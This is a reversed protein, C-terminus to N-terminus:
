RRAPEGPAASADHGSGRPLREAWAAFGVRSLDLEYHECPHHRGYVHHRFEPLRTFGLSELLQQYEPDPTSAAYIGNRALLAFMEKVLRARTPSAADGLYAAHSFHYAIAQEPREALGDRHAWRGEAYPGIAPHARLLDLSEVCIPVAAAFGVLRQNDRRRVLRLLTGPYTLLARTAVVMESPRPLEMRQAGWGDLVSELENVAARRPSTTHLLRPEDPCFLVDRLLTQNALFLHDAVLRERAPPAVEDMRRRYESLAALRLCRSREPDRWELDHALLLRLDDHLTLGHDTLKVGPIRSLAVFAERSVRAGVLRSLMAQDAERVVSLLALLEVEDDPVSRLWRELLTARVEALASGDPRRSRREALVADAGLALAGATRGLHTILSLAADDGVGRRKLYALADADSWADLEVLGTREWGPTGPGFPLSRASRAALVVAVEGALDALVENELYSRLPGLEDVDDVIVVAGRENAWTVFSEHGDVGLARWLEERSQERWPGRGFAVAREGRLHAALARLFTTKGAGVVGVVGVVRVGADGVLRCCRDLQEEFEGRLEVGEPPRPRAPLNDRARKSAVDHRDRDRARGDGAALFRRRAARYVAAVEAGVELDLERRAEKYRRWQREIQDRDKLMGALEIARLFPGEESRDLRALDELRALAEGLEGRSVLLEVLSELVGRQLQGVREREEAVWDDELLPLLPDGCYRLAQRLSSLSSMAALARLMGVDVAAPEECRWALGRRSSKLVEGLAPSARLVRHLAKRLNTLSQARSSDPWLLEALRGRAVPTGPRLALYAICAQCRVPLAVSQPADPTHLRFTGLLELRFPLVERPGPGGLGLHRVRSDSRCSEILSTRM